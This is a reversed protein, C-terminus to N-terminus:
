PSSAPRIEVCCEGQRPELVATLSRVGLGELLGSLFAENIGCVLSPAREALTHFPCNSMRLSGQDARYPEYGHEKLVSEMLALAREPGLRGRTGTGAASVGRERGRSRAARRRASQGSHDSSEREAADVLIVALEEYSRAPITVAVADEVPQYRKPTRGVGRPAMTPALAAVVQLLGFDVLRDLHFAALKRSVDVAQAAEERTVPRRAARVADYLRARQPDDLAAVARVDKTTRAHEM